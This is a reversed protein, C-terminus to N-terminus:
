IPSPSRAETRKSSLSRASKPCIADLIARSRQSTRCTPKGAAQHAVCASRDMSASLSTALSVRTNDHGRVLEGNFVIGVGVGDSVSVHVFSHAASARSRGSWTQALVCAKAANEIHVPLGTAQALADRVDVQKWGLTPANVVRGTRHDVMGPVAMGIGECRSDAGHNNLMRRVRVALDRVLEAPDFITSFMELALNHGSFDCLMM